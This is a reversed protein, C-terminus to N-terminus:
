DQTFEGVPLRRIRLRTEELVVISGENLADETAQLSSILQRVQADASRVPHRYLVFSPRSAGTTALLMGFDTDASVIVRDESRARLLVETDDAHLMEYEVLHVADHGASRLGAAVAPSLAADVLFRM